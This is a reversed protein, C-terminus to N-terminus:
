NVLDLIEKELLLELIIMSIFLIETLKVLTFQSKSQSTHNVLTLELSIFIVVSDVHSDKSSRELFKSILHIVEQPLELHKPEELPQISPSFM